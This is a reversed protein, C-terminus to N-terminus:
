TWKLLADEFIGQTYWVTMPIKQGMSSMYQTDLEAEIGVGSKQDSPVNTVTCPTISYDSWLTKLDKLQYYQEVFSAVVVTNNASSGSTNGVNYLQRLSTPTVENGPATTTKPTTIAPFRLTPSIFDLHPVLYSPVQYDTGIKVRSVIINENIASKYNYYQCNLLM